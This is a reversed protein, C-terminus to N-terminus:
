TGRTSPNRETSVELRTVIIVIFSIGSNILKNVTLPHIMVESVVKSYRHAFEPLRTLWAVLNKATAGLMKLMIVTTERGSM